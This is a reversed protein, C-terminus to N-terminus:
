KEAGMVKRAYSNTEKVIEELLDQTFFLGFVDKPSSSSDVTLCVPSSFDHHNHCNVQESRTYSCCSASTTASMDTSGSSSPASPSTPPSTLAAHLTTVRMSKWTVSSMMAGMVPEDPDDWNDDDDFFDSDDDCQQLM